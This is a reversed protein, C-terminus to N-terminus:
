KTSSDQVREAAFREIVTGLERQLAPLDDESLGKLSLDLQGRKGFVKMHGTVNGYAIAQQVSRVRTKKPTSELRARILAQTQKRNLDNQKIEEILAMAMEIQDSTAESDKDFLESMYYLTTLQSTAANESMRDIVPRPMRAIRLYYSVQSVSMHDRGNIDPVQESLEKATSVVKSDLLDKLSLAHDIVSPQSRQENYHRARLYLALHNTPPAEFKIDLGAVGSIKASRFRTGGDILVVRKTKEDVYGHAPDDQAKPLTQAIKDIDEVKYIKRPGVPNLDILHLPTWVTAGPICRDLSFKEATDSSSPSGVVAAASRTEDTAPPALADPQREIVQAAHAFRDQASATAVHFHKDAVQAPNLKIKKPTSM